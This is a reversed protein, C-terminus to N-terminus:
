PSRVLGTNTIVIHNSPLEVDAVSELYLRTGHYLNIHLGIDVPFDRRERLIYRLAQDAQVTADIKNEILIAHGNHLLM